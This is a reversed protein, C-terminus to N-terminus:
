WVRQNPKDPGGDFTAVGAAQEGAAQSMVADRIIAVEAPLLANAILRDRAPTNLM